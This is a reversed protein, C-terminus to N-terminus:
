LVYVASCHDSVWCLHIVLGSRLISKETSSIGWPLMTTDRWPPALPRNVNVEASDPSWEIQRAGAEAEQNSEVLVTLLHTQNLFLISDWSETKVRVISFWKQCPNQHDLQPRVHDCQFMILYFSNLDPVFSPTSIMSPYIERLLHMLQVFSDLIDATFLERLTYTAGRM